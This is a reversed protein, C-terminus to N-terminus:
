CSPHALDPGGSTFHIYPPVQTRLTSGHKSWALVDGVDGFADRGNSVQGLRADLAAAAVVWGAAAGVTTVPGAAVTSIRADQVVQAVRAGAAREVEDDGVGLMVARVTVAVEGDIQGVQGPGLAVVGAADLFESDAQYGLVAQGVLGGTPVQPTVM